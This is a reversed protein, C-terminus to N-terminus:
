GFEDRLQEDDPHPPPDQRALSGTVHQAWFWGYRASDACHDGPVIVSGDPLSVKRHKHPEYKDAIRKRQLYRWELELAGGKRCQFVGSRLDLNLLQDQRYRSTRHKEAPTVRIGYRLACHHSWEDRVASSAGGSDDVVVGHLQRVGKGWPLSPDALEVSEDGFRMMLPQNGLRRGTWAWIWYELWSRWQDSGLETLKASAFEYLTDHWPSWTLGVMAAPDPKFGLDLIFIAHWPMPVTRGYQHSQPLQSIRHPWAQVDDLVQQLGAQGTAISNYTDPDADDPDWTSVECLEYMHYSRDALWVGFFERLIKEPLKRGQELELINEAQERTLSRLFARQEASLPYVTPSLDLTNLVHREYRERFDVGFKPNDWSWFKHVEWGSGPQLIGHFFSDIEEGPTGTACVRMGEDASAPLIIDAMLTHFHELKQTEDLRVKNPAGGRVKELSRLDKASFLRIESGWIFQILRVVRQSGERALRWHWPRTPTSFEILGPMARLLEVAGQPTRDLWNRSYESLDGAFVWVRYNDQEIADDLDERGGTETKAARRNACVATLRAESCRWAWARKHERVLPRLSEAWQNRQARLALSPLDLGAASALQQLMHM